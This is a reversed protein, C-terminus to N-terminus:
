VCPVASSSSTSVSLIFGVTFGSLIITMEQHKGEKKLLYIYIKKGKAGMDTVASVVVLLLVLVYDGTASMVNVGKDKKWFGTTTVTRPILVKGGDSGFFRM